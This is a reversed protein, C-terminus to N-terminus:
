RAAGLELIRFEDGSSKPNRQDSLEIHVHHRGPPLDRAIEAVQRFSGWTDAFWSDLQTTPGNDVSVTATGYAGNCRFYVLYILSGEIDFTVSTGPTSSKWSQTGPDYAWGANESPRLQDASVLATHAFRETFRPSPLPPVASLQDDAPLHELTEQLLADIFTAVAAHGHDNPHVTDAFVDELKMRGASIEPWLADRYSIMPLQYRRGIEIQGGQANTGIHHMMFLLVIAPQDPDAAIQRVVGEYTDFTAQEDRDNVGFEVIVFDPHYSLLDRQVRLCGYNSGTSEVGSNILTVRSEPFSEQWWKTVLSAYGRSPDTAKEGLTISGGIVGITIPEGRRAKALARQLRAPNGDSVRSRAMIQPDFTAVVTAKHRSCSVALM